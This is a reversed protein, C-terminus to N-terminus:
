MLEDIAEAPMKELKFNNLWNQLNNTGTKIEKQAEDSTAFKTVFEKM